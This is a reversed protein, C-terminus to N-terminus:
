LQIGTIKSLVLMLRRGAFFLNQDLPEPASSRVTASSFRTRTHGRHVHMSVVPSSSSLAPRRAATMVHHASGTGVTTSAPRPAPKRTVAPASRPLPVSADSITNRETWQLAAFAQAVHEHASALQVTLQGSAVSQDLRQELNALYPKDLPRVALPAPVDINQSNPASRGLQLSSNEVLQRAAGTCSQWALTAVVGICFVALFRSVALLDRM